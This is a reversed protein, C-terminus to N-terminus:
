VPPLPLFVEYRFLFIFLRRLSSPSLQTPFSHSSFIELFFDGRQLFLLEDRSEYYCNQSEDNANAVSVGTVYTPDKKKTHHPFYSAM